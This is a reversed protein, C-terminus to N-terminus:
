LQRWILGKNKLYNDLMHNGWGYKNCVDKKLMNLQCKCYKLFQIGGKDDIEQWRCQGNNKGALQPANKGSNWTIIGKLSKSRKERTKKSQKRGKQSESIKRKTEETHKYGKKAESMKRKAEETHRRGKNAKSIKNKHEESLKRGKNYQNGLLLKSIKERQTKSLKKGKHAKSMKERSEESYVRNNGDLTLNYHRKNCFTNYYDIWYREKNNLVNKHCEEIIIFDFVSEGYKNWSNQLFQNAHENKRLLNKHTHWRQKINISQGIYMQGTNRNKIM